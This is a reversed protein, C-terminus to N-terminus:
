KQRVFRNIDVDTFTSLYNSYEVVFYKDFRESKIEWDNFRQPYCNSCGFCKSSCNYRINLYAYVVPM